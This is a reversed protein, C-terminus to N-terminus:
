GEMPIKLDGLTQRMWALSKEIVPGAQGECEMSLVGKCGPHPTRLTKLM